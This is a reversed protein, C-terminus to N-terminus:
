EMAAAYRNDYMHAGETGKKVWLWTKCEYKEARYVVYSASALRSLKVSMRRSVVTRQLFSCIFTCLGMDGLGIGDRFITLLKRM